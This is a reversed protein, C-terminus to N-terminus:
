VITSRKYGKLVLGRIPRWEFVPIEGDALTEIHYSMDRRVSKGRFFSDKIWSKLLGVFVTKLLGLYFHISWYNSYSLQVALCKIRQKLAKSQSIGSSSITYDILYLPLNEVCGIHMVERLFAYDEATDFKTNYRVGRKLLSSRFMWSPHFLCNNYFMGRRIEENRLPMNNFSLYKGDESIIRVSTGILMVDQNEDLYKRQIALREPMAKDDADLRAIYEYGKSSIYELGYNLAKSIGQNAELRLVVLNKQPAIQEIIPLSSGDDVVIIDHPEKNANLSGIAINLIKEANFAPILVAIRPTSKIMQVKQVTSFFKTIIAQILRKSPQEDVGREDFVRGFM